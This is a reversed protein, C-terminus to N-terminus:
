CYKPCPHSQSSHAGGGHPCAQGVLIADGGDPPIPGDLMSGGVNHNKDVMMHLDVSVISSWRWQISDRFQLRYELVIEFYRGM